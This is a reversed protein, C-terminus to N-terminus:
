GVVVQLAGDGGGITVESGALKEVLDGAAGVGEAAALEFDLEVTLAHSCNRRRIGAGEGGRAREGTAVDVVRRSAALADGQMQRGGSIDRDVEDVLEIGAIKERALPEMYSLRLLAGVEEFPHRGGAVFPAHRAEGEAAETLRKEGFIEEEAQFIGGALVRNGM